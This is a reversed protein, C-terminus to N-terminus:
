RTPFCKLSSTGIEVGGLPVDTTLPIPPHHLSSHIFVHISPHISSQM